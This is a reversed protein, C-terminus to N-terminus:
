NRSEARRLSADVDRILTEVPQAIQVLGLRLHRGEQLDAVNGAEDLAGGVALTQAVGEQGVDHHPAQKFFM